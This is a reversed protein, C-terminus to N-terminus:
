YLRCFFSVQTQMTFQSHMTCNLLFLQSFGSITKLNMLSEKFNPNMGITQMCHLSDAYINDTAAERILEAIM